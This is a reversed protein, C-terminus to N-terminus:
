DDDDEEWEEDDWYDEDVNSNSLVLEAMLEAAEEEEGLEHLTEIAVLIAGNRAADGDPLETIIEELLEIRIEPEVGDRLMHIGLLAMAETEALHEAVEYYMRVKNMFEVEEPVDQHFERSWHGDGDGRMMREHMEVMLTPDGHEGMVQMIHGRIEEPRGSESRMMFEHIKNRTDPNDIGMTNMFHIPRDNMGRMVEGNVIVQIEAEGDQGAYREIMEQIGAPLDDSDLEFEFKYVSEITNNADHYRDRQEVDPTNTTEILVKDNAKNCGIM